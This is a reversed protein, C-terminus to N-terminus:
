ASIAAERAVAWPFLIETKKRTHERLDTLLAEILGLLEHCIECPGDPSLLERTLDRLRLVVGRIRALDREAIAVRSKIMGSRCRSISTQEQLRLLMPFLVQEEMSLQSEVCARLGGMLQQMDIVVPNGAENGAVIEGVIQEIRHVQHRLYVHHTSSIQAILEGAALNDSGCTM